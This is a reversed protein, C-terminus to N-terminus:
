SNLGHARGIEDRSGRLGPRHRGPLLLRVGPRHGRHHGRDPRGRASQRPAGRIMGRVRWSLLSAFVLAVVFGILLSPETLRGDLRHTFILVPLRFLAPVPGFYMDTRGGTRIGEISLVSAPMSGTGHLFSRAQVDYFTSFPVSRFFQFTGGTVMWAFAVGAITIGVTSGYLFRRASTESARRHTRPPPVGPGDRM